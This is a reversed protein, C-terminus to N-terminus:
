RLWPATEGRSRYDDELRLWVAAKEDENMFIWNAVEGFTRRCGMCVEDGLATSCLAVCPSDPRTIVDSM